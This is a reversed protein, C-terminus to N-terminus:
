ADGRGPWRGMDVSPTQGGDYEQADGWAISKSTTDVAGVNYWLQEGEESQHVEVVVGGSLAVSPYRGGDFKESDGWVISDAATDVIGVHTGCTQAPIRSTCRWRWGATWRWRRTVPGADFRRGAGWRITKTEADVTGVKYWLNTGQHSQHVEVVLRGDVAVSPFRGDDHAGVEGWDVTESRADIVGVRYRLETEEEEQHM